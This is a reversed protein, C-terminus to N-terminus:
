LISLALSEVHLTLLKAESGDLITMLISAILLIAKEDISLLDNDLARVTM